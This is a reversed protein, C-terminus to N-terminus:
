ETLLLLMGWNAKAGSPPPPPGGVGVGTTLALLLNFPPLEVAGGETIDNVTITIVSDHPTNTAGAFTERVTIDHLGATEFDTATAGTFIGSGTLKFRGGATDTLSLTSGAHVGVLTGVAVDELSEEDVDFNDLTLDQLVVVENVTIAIVTDHPSNTALAYTERVTINHSTATDYDTAVGATYISSGTLKFRSGASNTLSLTSGAETGVLAGVLTDEVSHEDIDSNDLTLDDLVIDDPLDNITIAFVTDRPSNSAGALTERVTINLSTNTEYDINTAGALISTGIVKFSNSASDFLTLTSGFTRGIISGVFTDEASNEDIDANSLTLANLTPVIVSVDGSGTVGAAGMKGFRNGLGLQM